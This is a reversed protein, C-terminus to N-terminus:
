ALAALVQQITESAYGAYHNNVVTHDLMETLKDVEARDGLFTRRLNVLNVPNEQSGELWSSGDV